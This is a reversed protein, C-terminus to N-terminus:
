TYENNYMSEIPVWLWGAIWCGDDGLSFKSPDDLIVDEDIEVENNCHASGAAAILSRRFGQNAIGDPFTGKYGDIAAILDNLLPMAQHFVGIRFAIKEAIIKKLAEDM